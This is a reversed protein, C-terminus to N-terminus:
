YPAREERYALGLAAALDRGLVRGADHDTRAILIDPTGEKGALIVREYPGGPSWALPPAREVRVGEFDQMPFRGAPGYLRIGYLRGPEVVVADGTITGLSSELNNLFIRGFFLTIVGVGGLLVAGLIDHRVVLSYVLGPVVILLLLGLVGRLILKIISSTDFHYPISVPMM